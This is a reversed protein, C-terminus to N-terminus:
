AVNAPPLSRGRIMDSAKEAIMITPINTNGGPEDPMVSADVVRLRELGHVRLQEDVVANADVGMRCTGLPHQRNHGLERIKAELEADTKAEAGPTMERGILSKHPETNYIERAIRLARIMDDVDEREGFLNFFIRPTDTPNSSRLKLWGRSKPYLTGVRATYSHPQPNLLGPFWLQADNAVASCVMQVDPRELHPQSKTFIIAASGNGAFPGSRMLHWRAGSITARDLRLQNLFTDKKKAEYMLLMNPHEALNQGVGSLDHVPKVGVSKLHDAPGIGSLMMVQPSNYAGGSLIVERAAYAQKKQGDQLYEIGKAQGNEVIVRLTLAGTEVTLNPRSMAPRLYCTATSQREGNGVFLEIQSVGENDAGNYDDRKPLGYKMAAQEMPEYAQEPHYAQTVKIPGNGGHYESDGRWSSELRKFYPLVDAYSWGTLGQQRWLDYDRRNGRAFIMGNISSTGGLTKGRRLPITRGNIGPDPETEFNWIYKPHFSMQVFAIPMKLWPHRDPRGAELLLVKADKDESLRNALVCGASGAGVIIYDFTKM